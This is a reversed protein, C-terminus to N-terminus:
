FYQNEDRGMGRNKSPDEYGNTTLVLIHFLLNGEGYSAGNQPIWRFYPKAAIGANRYEAIKQAALSKCDGYNKSYLVPTTDWELTRDYVVSSQYLAPTAHDRLYVRDCAILCELLVHLAQANKLRSAGPFFCGPIDFSNTSVDFTTPAVLNLAKCARSMIQLSDRGLATPSSPSNIRAFGFPIIM